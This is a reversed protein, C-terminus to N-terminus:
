VTECLELTEPSCNWSGSAAPQGVSLGTSVTHHQNELQQEPTNKLHGLVTRAIVMAKPHRGSISPLVKNGFVACVKTVPYPSILNTSDPFHGEKGAPCWCQFTSQPNSHPSFDEIFKGLLSSQVISERAWYPVEMGLTMTYAFALRDTPLFVNQTM